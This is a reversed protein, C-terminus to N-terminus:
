RASHINRLFWVLHKILSSSLSLSLSFPPPPPPSSLMGDDDHHSSSQKTSPRPDHFKIFIDSTHRSLGLTSFNFSELPIEVLSQHSNTSEGKDRSCSLMPMCEKEMTEWLHETSSLELQGCHYNVQCCMWSPQKKKGANNKQGEGTNESIM